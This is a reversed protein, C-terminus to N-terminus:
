PLDEMFPGDELAAVVLVGQIEGACSNARATKPMWPWRASAWTAAEFDMTSIDM